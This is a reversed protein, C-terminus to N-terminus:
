GPDGIQVPHVTKARSGPQEQVRTQSTKRSCLTGTALLWRRTVGPPVKFLVFLFKTSLHLHVKQTHEQKMMSAQQAWIMYPLSLGLSLWHSDAHPEGGRIMYEGLINRTVNENTLITEARGHFPACLWHHPAWGLQGVTEPAHSSLSWLSLHSGLPTMALTLAM